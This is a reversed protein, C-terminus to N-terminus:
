KGFPQYHSVTTLYSCYQSLIDSEKLLRVFNDKEPSGSIFWCWLRGLALDEALAREPIKKKQCDLHNPRLGSPWCWTFDHLTAKAVSLFSGVFITYAQVFSDCKTKM